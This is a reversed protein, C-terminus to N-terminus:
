RTGFYACRTSQQTNPLRLACGVRYSALGGGTGRLAPKAGQETWNKLAKATSCDMLASQSLKVGSVSRLRVAESIGCGNIRGPVFGVFDGQLDPDGCVQGRRREARRAMAKEVIGNPRLLPRLSITSEPLIAAPPVASAVTPVAAAVAVDRVVNRADTGARAVPRKSAEPAAVAFGAALMLGLALARM